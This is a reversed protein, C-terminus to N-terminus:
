SLLRVVIIKFVQCGNAMSYMSIQSLKMARDGRINCFHLIGLKTRNSNHCMEKRFPVVPYSFTVCADNYVRYTTFIHILCGTIPGGKGVM